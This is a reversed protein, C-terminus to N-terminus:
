KICNVINKAKIREETVNCLPIKARSFFSVEFSTEKWRLERINIDKGSQMEM